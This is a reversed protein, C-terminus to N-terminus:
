IIKGIISLPIHKAENHGEMLDVSMGRKGPKLVLLVDIKRRSYLMKFFDTPFWDSKLLKHSLVKELHSLFIAQKALRKAHGEKQLGQIDNVALGVMLNM